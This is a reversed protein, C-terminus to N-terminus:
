KIIQYFRPDFGELRKRAVTFIEGKEYTGDEYSLTGVLVKVKVMGSPLKPKEEVKPEAKVPEEKPHEPTTSQATEVLEISKRIAKRPKVKESM